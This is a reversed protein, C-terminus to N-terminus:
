LHLDLGYSLTKRTRLLLTRVIDAQFTRETLFSLTICFLCVASFDLHSIYLNELETYCIEVFKAIEIIGM